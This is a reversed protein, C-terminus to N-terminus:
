IVYTHGKLVSRCDERVCCGERHAIVEAMIALGIEQPSIAGIKLGIPAHVRGIDEQRFGEERLKNLISNVRRKSGIMGIYNAPSGLLFRLCYEDYKHGRTVIVISCGSDIRLGGLRDKLNVLSLKIRGDPFRSRNLIDSRDDFVEVDYGLFAGILGVSQGVHGAGFILLKYRPLVNETITIHRTGEHNSEQYIISNPSDNEVPKYSEGIEIKENILM